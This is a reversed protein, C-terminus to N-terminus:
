GSHGDDSVACRGLQILIPALISYIIHSETIRFPVWRVRFAEHRMMSVSSAPGLAKHGPEIRCSRADEVRPPNVRSEHRV